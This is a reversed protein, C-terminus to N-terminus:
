IVFPPNIEWQIMWWSVLIDQHHEHPVQHTYKILICWSPFFVGDYQKVVCCIVTSFLDPLVKPLHLQWYHIWSRIAEWCGRNLGQERVQLESFQVWIALWRAFLLNIQKNVKNKLHREPRAFKIAVLNNYIGFDCLIFYQCWVVKYSYLYRCKSRIQTCNTYPNNAHNAFM